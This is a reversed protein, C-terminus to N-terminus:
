RPFGPQYTELTVAVHEFRLDVVGPAKRRAPPPRAGRHRVTNAIDQCLALEPCATTLCEKFWVPLEGSANGRPIGIERALVHQAELNGQFCETWVDEHIRWALVAVYNVYPELLERKSWVREKKEYLHEVISGPKTAKELEADLEALKDILSPM